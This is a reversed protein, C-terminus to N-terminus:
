ATRRAALWDWLRAALAVCLEIDEALMYRQGALTVGADRV